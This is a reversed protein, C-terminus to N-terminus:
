DLLMKKITAVNYSNPRNAIVSFQQEIVFKLLPLPILNCLNLGKIIKIDFKLESM